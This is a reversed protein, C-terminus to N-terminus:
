SLINRITLYIPWAKKDQTEWWWDAIHMESYVQLPPEVSNWEKVPAYFYKTPVLLGVLPTSREIDLVNASEVDSHATDTNIFADDVAINMEIMDFEERLRDSSLTSDAATLPIQAPREKDCIPWRQTSQPKHKFAHLLQIVLKKVPVTSYSHITHSSTGIPSFEGCMQWDRLLITIITCNHGNQPEFYGKWM